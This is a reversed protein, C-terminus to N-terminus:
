VLHYVLSGIADMSSVHCGEIILFFFFVFITRKTTTACKQTKQWLVFYISYLKDFDGSPNQGSKKERKIGSKSKNCFCHIDNINQWSNM